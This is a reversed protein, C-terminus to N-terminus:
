GRWGASSSPQHKTQHGRCGLVLGRLKWGPWYSPLLLPCCNCLVTEFPPLPISAPRYATDSCVEAYYGAGLEVLVTDKQHVLGPVYLSETLPVLM